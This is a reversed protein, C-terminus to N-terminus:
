LDMVFSVFREAPEIREGSGSRHVFARGSCSERVQDVGLAAATVARGVSEVWNASPRSIAERQCVVPLIATWGETPALALLDCGERRSLGSCHLHTVDPGDSRHSAFGPASWGTLTRATSSDSLFRETISWRHHTGVLQAALLGGVGQAASASLWVHRLPCADGESVVHSGVSLLRGGAARALEQFVAAGAEDIVVIWRAGRTEELLAALKGPYLLIGGTVEVTRLAPSAGEACAARVGKAFADDAGTDGLFLLVQKPRRAPHDAFAWSPSGLALLAGGALLGKMLSRRDIDM